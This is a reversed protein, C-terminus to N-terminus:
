KIAAIFKQMEEMAGVTIRTWKGEDEYFYTGEINNSKLLSFFDKKYNDLSFYIFNTHSPICHINLHTLQDITYKRVTENKIYCQKLFDNDSLSAIAGARSVVSVSGNAWTQLDDGIRNITEAHAVAYGIRAGAMGYIKSFTKVVILNKNSTVLNCVSSQNTYDIYAEDIVVTVKKTAEKIFSVLSEYECITGSPNNPNCVYIMKTEADIASLMAPLDHRKDTSLPISIKKLGSKEATKAWYTYSPHAVIFNGKQVAFYQVVLDLIVTSGAGVLINADEVHNRKALAAILDETTIWNYRNSSIISDAMASRALPSPGYPNENSSLRIPNDGPPAFTLRDCVPVALAKLQISGLGATLLGIQQLWKRRNTQM